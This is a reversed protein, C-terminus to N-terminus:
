FVQITHVTHFNLKRRTLHTITIQATHHFPTLNGEPFLQIVSEVKSINRLIIPGVNSPNTFKIELSSVSPHPPYSVLNQGRSSMDQDQKDGPKETSFLQSTHTVPEPMPETIGLAWPLSSSHTHWGVLV